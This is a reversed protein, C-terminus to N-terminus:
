DRCLARLMYYQGVYPNRELASGCDIEGGQYDELYFKALGRYFYPEAQWPKANIVLNFRQIALVYDEYYLANRGMLLVRDANIQAQVCTGAVLLLGVAMVRLLAQRIRNAIKRM